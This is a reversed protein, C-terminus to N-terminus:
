NRWFGSRGAIRVRGMDRIRWRRIRSGTACWGCGRRSRRGSRGRSMSPGRPSICCCRPTGAVVGGGGVVAVGAAAGGGARRRARPDLLVPLGRAALAERSCGRRPPSARGRGARSRSSGARLEAERSTIRCCRSRAARCARAEARGCRGALACGARPVGQGSVSLKGLADGRAFPLGSRRTMASRFRHCEEALQAADDRRSRARRGAAGLPQRGLWVPARDVVDGATFLTVDEFERFAWEMLREGEEARQHMSNMGNLVLIVRRGSRQSSAVLGYGGEETHGTKLGDATGKQVLPNRNGQEIGNYKFTKESDYHYYEPFDQIIRAALIAIDRCSMRHEPDPWGTSNRFNSNTLGLEKAKQNM